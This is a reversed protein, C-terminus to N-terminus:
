YWNYIKLKADYTIYIKTGDEKVVTIDYELIEIDTMFGTDPAFTDFIASTEGPLITDYNSLYTKENKDKLLVTASFGKIAYNSNNKYTAEMYRTGISDPKLITIELPLEEVIVLPLIAKIRTELVKTWDLIAKSTAKKLDRIAYNAKDISDRTNEQEAKKVLNLANTQLKQQIVDVASSYSNKFAPNLEAPISEKAINIYEQSMIIEAFEISSVINVLIPHQVTDVKKSFEGIAWDLKKPLKKIETRAVNVSAQSKTKLAQETANYANKYLTDVSITEAKVTNTTISLAMIVGTVILLIRNRKM